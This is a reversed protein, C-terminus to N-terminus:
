ENFGDAPVLRRRHRFAARFAPKTAVTEARANIMSYASGPGNSWPPVLGRSLM